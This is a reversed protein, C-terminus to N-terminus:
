SHGRSKSNILKNLMNLTYSYIEKFALYETNNIYGLEESIIICEDVEELSGRAIRFQNIRKDGVFSNGERINLRVSVIARQIQSKLNYNESTPFLKTTEYVIKTLEKLTDFIRMMEIM